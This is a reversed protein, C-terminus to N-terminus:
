GGVQVATVGNFSAWQQLLGSLGKEEQDRQKGQLFARSALQLGSSFPNLFCFLLGIATFLEM